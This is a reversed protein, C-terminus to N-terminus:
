PTAAPAPQRSAPQADSTAAASAPSGGPTFGLRKFIEAADAGRLYEIFRAADAAHRSSKLVVAPYEIPAHWSPDATAAVRVRNPELRADTAYVIGADVEGRAVYDLVQRVNSGYILRPGLPAFLGLTTLAQNAYEGAPVTAPDGIALRELSSDALRQFSLDAPAATKSVILVLRNGAVVTRSDRSILGERALDDIQRHAASVFVDIPMGNRIQALLQGSSGFSLEIKRGTTKEFDAAISEFAERLSIAAAVRLPGAAPPARDCGSSAIVVACVWVALTRIRRWRSRVRRERLSIGGLGM